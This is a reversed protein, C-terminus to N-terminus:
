RPMDGAPGVPMDQRSPEAIAADSASLLDLASLLADGDIPGHLLLTKGSVRDRLQLAPTAAIGHQHAEAAQARIVAEPRDSDLCRQMAPTLDPYRVGEPLGQGNGRTHAYLWAVARWFAAQGHAEGACEALRAASSAAPEHTAVPLHHWQWAVDPHTDIWRTLTPFYARCYPCELDAYGVITYRADRRGYRWPPGAPKPPEATVTVEHTRQSPTDRSTSVLWAAAAVALTAVGIVAHRRTLARLPM